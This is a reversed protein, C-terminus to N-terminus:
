GDGLPLEVLAKRTFRGESPYGFANNLFTSGDLACVNNLHSHGFVHFLPRLRAVQEGLATSGLVPMLFYQAPDIRRPLVDVRPLFHSFSVIREGPLPPQVVNRAHFWGAVEPLQMGGPWACMRFDAWRNQLDEGPLGFSFDYWSLLPVIRLAGFRQPATRVDLRACTELIRDFKGLSDLGESRRVWLDHNGPVFFVALFKDRLRALAEELRVRDASLDGALLLVDARYEESSLARLWAENEAYDVHLDSLAFIRM